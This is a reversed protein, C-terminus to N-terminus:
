KKLAFPNQPADESGTGFANENMWWEDQAQKETEKKATSIRQWKESIDNIMVTEIKNDESVNKQAEDLEVKIYQDLEIEDDIGTDADTLVDNIDPVTEDQLNRQKYISNDIFYAADVTAKGRFNDDRLFHINNTLVPLHYYGEALLLQYGKTEVKLNSKVRLYNALRHYYNADAVHKKSKFIRKGGAPIQVSSTAFIALKDLLRSMKASNEAMIIKYNTNAVLGELIERGYNREMLSLSNCLLLVSTNRSPGGAVCKALENLRLMQGADDAVLLIPLGDTTPTNLIGFHVLMEVFLRSVFKSTKTNASMYVTIPCLKQRGSDWIGRLQAFRLDNGGTRERLTQHLFVRLPKLLYAFVLQRQQKSLYLFQQLGHIIGEGYSFVAAETLLKELWHRWDGNSQEARAQLYNKLLWDTIMGLCLDKGQWSAPIGEWSGIPFYDDVGLREKSIDAIAKCSYAPPMLAYYSLLVDKDDKNLRGNELIKNLFYDNAMAQSCKAAMFGIFTALAGSALWDWYNDKQVQGDGAIIYASMYNIYEDREQGAPPLNGEALPNWRPYIAGKEPEDALDWNYYFVPGKSARHGSTYKSLTGTNDIAIISSGDPRLISPIAVTSTKGCGTEGLCLIAGPKRMGLLKGDYGGLVTLKGELLGMKKVDSLKAFHYNLIYWLVFSYSSHCFVSYLVLATAAPAILPLFLIWVPSLTRISRIFASWWDAYVSFFYAPNDVIRLVSRRYWELCHETGGHLVFHVITFGIFSLIVFCLFAAVVGAFLVLLAKGASKEDEISQKFMM